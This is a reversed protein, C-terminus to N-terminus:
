GVWEDQAASMRFTFRRRTSIKLAAFSASVADDLKRERGPLWNLELGFCGATPGDLDADLRSLALALLAADDFQLLTQCGLHSLRPVFCPSDPTRTLKALLSDTILLEDVGRNNVSQHDSIELRELSHLGSLCELLQTDTIHVEFIQLSRLHSDYDSRTSLALFEAHPWILPFSPYNQYELELHALFPLTLNAFLTGLAEESHSPEFEGLVQIYFSSINSTQPRYDMERWHDIDSWLTLHIQFQAAKPLRSMLTLAEPAEYLTTTECKFIKLRALPLKDINDALFPGPFGLYTLSPLSSLMDLSDPEDYSDDIDLRQLLPLKGQIASLEGVLYCPCVFTRWRQSHAALMHLIPPPFPHEGVNTLAVNLLVTGSRALTSQLLTTTKDIHSPTDWLVGDLEIDCWLFPTGLAIARWSTCVQAVVLLPAHVLRAIETEFQATQSTVPAPSVDAPPSGALRAVELDFPTTPPEIDDFRPTFSCWCLAFIEVLLEAPFCKIGASGDPKPEAARM